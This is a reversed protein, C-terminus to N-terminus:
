HARRRRFLGVMLLLGLGALLSNRESDHLHPASAAHCFGGGGDRNETRCVTTSGDDLSPLCFFGADADCANADSADCEFACQSNECFGSRCEGPNTCTAGQSGPSIGAWVCREDTCTMGSPCSNVDEADCPKDCYTFTPDDTAPVCAGLEECQGSSDCGKGVLVGEPCDWDRTACDEKCVGNYECDDCAGGDCGGSVYKIFPAIFQEVHIDARQRGPDDPCGGQATSHFLTISVVEPGSGFDVFGPGGRDSYCTTVEESGAKLRGASIEAIPTTIANRATHSELPESGDEDKGFGVFEIDQGVLSQALPDSHVSVPTIGPSESLYLMAVDNTGRLEPDYYRHMTLGNVTMPDENFTDDLHYETTGGISSGFQIVVSEADLFDDTFEDDLEAELNASLCGAVTMVTREEVLVGTCYRFETRATNNDGSPLLVTIAAVADYHAQGIAPLGGTTAQQTSGLDDERFDGADMQCAAVSAALSLFM